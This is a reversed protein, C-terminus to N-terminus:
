GCEGFIASIAKSEYSDDNANFETKIESVQDDIMEQIEENISSILRDMVMSGFENETLEGNVVNEILYNLFLDREFVIEYTDFRTDKIAYSLLRMKDKKNLDKFQVEYGHHHILEEIRFDLENKHYCNVEFMYKEKLNIGHSKM